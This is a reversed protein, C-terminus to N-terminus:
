TERKRMELLKKVCELTQANPIHFAMDANCVNDFQRGFVAKRKGFSCGAPCDGCTNIHAWAIEKIHQDIPIDAHESSYDGESWITWPGPYERAADIHMYCVPKGKYSREAGNVIMENAELYAAFDLANKLEDGSLCNNMIDVISQNTLNIGGKNYKSLQL